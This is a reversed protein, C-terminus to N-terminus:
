SAFTALREIYWSPFNWEKAAEIFPRIYEPQSPKNETVSSRFCLAPRWKGGEMEVLLAEPLYPPGMTGGMLAELIKQQKERAFSFLMGYVIGREKPFINAIPAVYIEYGPLRAVEYKEPCLDKEKLIQLDIWSGYFFIWACDNEAESM